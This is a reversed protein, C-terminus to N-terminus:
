RYKNERHAPNVTGMDKDDIILRCIPDGNQLRRAKDAIEFGWQSAYTRIGGDKYPLIRGFKHVLQGNASVLKVERQAKPALIVPKNAKPDPKRIGHDDSFAKYIIRPDLKTVGKDRMLQVIGDLKKPDLYDIRDPIPTQDKPKGTKEDIAVTWKGNCWSTWAWFVLCSEHVKMDAPVNRDRMEQGDYSFNYSGKRPKASKMGHIENIVSGDLVLDGKWVSNVISIYRAEKLCKDILRKLPDGKINHECFFSFQVDLDPFEQKLNNHFKLDQMIIPDHKIPDYKHNGDWISQGRFGGARKESAVLRISKRADGFTHMFSGYYWDKPLEQAILKYYKPLGLTDIGKKM